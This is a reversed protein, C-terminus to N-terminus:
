AADGAAPDPEREALDWLESPSLGFFEAYLQVTRFEARKSQRSEIVNTHGPCLGLQRDLERSPTEQAERLRKIVAGLNM